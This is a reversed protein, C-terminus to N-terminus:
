ATVVAQPPFRLRFVSGQGLTSEVTVVGRHLRMITRVIALGLGAGKTTLGRSQDVQFFRDFIRDLRDPPIGTGTDAVAIEVGTEGEAISLVVRGGVPTYKLANALLNSIARRILMADGTVTARGQCAVTIRKEAALADYFERVAEIEAALEIQQSEIVTNPNDARAIFLLSDIMRTLRETEELGSVLVQQYEQPTRERALAVETEGRLNNIPNRLAHAMDATCESLQTFSAQLRDLMADFATALGVLEIPWRNAAVREDLRSATIRRVTDTIDALPRVGVRAVAVGTIAAVVLGFGFIVLLKQRYSALLSENHSVDLGLQLQRMRAVPGREVANASLLLFPRGDVERFVSQDELAGRTSVPVPFASAPLVTAMDPSEILVRGDRDLVRLYYRLGETESAEHVVESELMEPRNSHQGLLLRMVKVKSALLRRDQVELSQRLGWDLMWAASLLLIATAVSYLFILRRTLSWAKRPKAPTPTEAKNTM